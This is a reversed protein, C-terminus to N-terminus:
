SGLGLVRAAAVEGSERSLFDGMEAAPMPHGYLFGQAYECGRERLFRAQGPMEVGEAIVRLGLNRGLEIVACVIASDFPDTALHAVFSKDIKVADIPLQKLHTLAAYGTGFDDLSIRMGAAYLEDLIPAVFESDRGLFVTETVEVDFYRPEIEEDWILGLLQSALRPHTFQAPALNFAIRGFVAGANLWARADRAVQRIMAEGMQVALDADEFASMFKDPAVMTGDGQRWRMLAELGVLRGTVLSIKPQYYPVIAKQQLANALERNVLVRETMARRMAPAYLVARNRGQKKATYLALDADKMLEGPAYDPSPCVAIGISARSSMHREGYALPQRFDRLIADALDLAAQASPQEQLLVVFEDGGLRAVAGLDGALHELRRATEMLLADGADHGLTDNVDKLGDLDVLLLVVFGAVERGQRIMADLRQQFASRNILGTLADHTAAHRVKQEAALRDTIDIVGSVLCAKGDLETFAAALLVTRIEGHGLRIKTEFDTVRGESALRELFRTRSAIDEYVDTIHSIGFKHPEGGFYRIGAENYRVIRGSQVETIVLPIPVAMFTHELLHQSQVLGRRAVREAEASAWQLRGYRNHQAVLLVLFLNLVVGAFLFSFTSGPVPATSFYSGMTLLTCGVGTAVTWLFSIPVVLYYLAPVLLMAVLGIQTGISILAAAAVATLWMGAVLVAQVQAFTTTRRLALLCGLAVLITGLRAGIALNFGARGLLQFDIALLLGNLGASLVCLIRAHRLLEPARYARYAEEQIRSAFEGTWPNVRAQEM